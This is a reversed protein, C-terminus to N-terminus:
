KPSGMVRRDMELGDEAAARGAAFIMSEEV